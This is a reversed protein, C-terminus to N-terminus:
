MRAECSYNAIDRLADDDHKRRSAIRGAGGVIPITEIKKAAALRRAASFQTTYGRGAAVYRVGWRVFHENFEYRPSLSIKYSSQHSIRNVRQDEYCLSICHDESFAGPMTVVVDTIDIPLPNILYVGLLDDLDNDIEENRIAIFPLTVGFDRPVKWRRVADKLIQAFGADDSRSMANFVAYTTDRVDKAVLKKQADLNQEIGDLANRICEFNHRWESPMGGHRFQGDLEFASTEADLGEMVAITAREFRSILDRKM